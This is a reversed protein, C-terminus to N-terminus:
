SIESIKVNSASDANGTGPERSVLSLRLSHTQDPGAACRHSVCVGPAWVPGMMDCVLPLRIRAAATLGVERMLEALKRSGSFGFPEMRDGPQPPRIYLDGVIGGLDLYTTTSQRQPPAAPGIDAHISWGFFVAETLGPVQLVTRQFTDPHVIRVVVREDDVEAVVDGGGFTFAVSGGMRVAQAVRDCVDFSSEGGLMRALLYIARRILPHPAMALRARSFHAEIDKTLFFLPGNPRIEAQELLGAAMGDLLHNEEEALRALQAIAEDFAPHVEKLAPIVFRRLKVRAFTEDDNCPDDHTWLHHRQCYDRTESRTFPLLPRIIEGNQAPIGALGALGTGRAINFLVTEIHDDKTHGTAIWRASLQSATRRLFDYRALRGAEEIGIRRDQALKPVDARGLAFGIDFSKALAECQRAESEAEERQGHHLHAAVVQRGARVLLHLLCTSDPGGSYAVLGVEDTPAMGLAEIHEVFRDFM